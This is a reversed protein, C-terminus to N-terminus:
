NKNINYPKEIAIKIQRGETLQTTAECANILAIIPLPFVNRSRVSLQQITENTKAEEIKLVKYKFSKKEQTTLAKVSEIVGKIDSEYASTSLGTFGLLLEGQEMWLLFATVTDTKTYEKM